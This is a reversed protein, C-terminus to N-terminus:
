TPSGSTGPTLPPRTQEGSNAGKQPEREPALEVPPGAAVEPTAEQVSEIVEVLPRDGIAEELEQLTLRPWHRKLCVFFYALWAEPDGDALRKGCEVAGMGGSAEKLLRTEPWTFKEIPVIEWDRNAIRVTARAAPEPNSITSM